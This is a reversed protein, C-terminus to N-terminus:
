SKLLIRRATLLRTSPNQSPVPLIPSCVQINNQRMPAFECPHYAVFKCYPSIELYKMMYWKTSMSMVATFTTQKLNKICRRMPWRSTMFVGSDITHVQLARTLGLLALWRRFLNTQRHHSVPHCHSITLCYRFSRLSISSSLSWFIFSLSTSYTICIVHCPSLFEFIVSSRVM